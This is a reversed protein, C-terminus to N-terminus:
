LYLKKKKTYIIIFLLNLFKNKYKNIDKVFGKMKLLNVQKLLEKNNLFHKFLIHKQEIPLENYIKEFHDYEYILSILYKVIDLHGYKSSSLLAANVDAGNEILYKVLELNGKRANDILDKNLKEQNISM